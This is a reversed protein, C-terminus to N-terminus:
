ITKLIELLDSTLRNALYIHGEKNLHTADPTTTTGLYIDCNGDNKIDSVQGSGTMYDNLKRILQGKNDYIEGNMMDIFPYKYKLAINKLATNKPEFTSKRYKPKPVFVGLVVVLCNPLRTKIEGYLRDIEKTFEEVSYSTDNIAGEMFLIDPNFYYVDTEMRDGIKTRNVGPNLYGTGGVGVNICDYNLYKSILYPYGLHKYMIVSSSETISSGQFVALPKREERLQYLSYIKNFAIGGFNEQIELIIERPKASDFKVKTYRRSGDNAGQIDFDNKLYKFGNGENILMRFKLQGIFYIEFEDGDFGFGVCLMGGKNNGMTADKCSIFLNKPAPTDLKDIKHRFYNFKNEVVTGDVIALEEIRNKLTSPQAVLRTTYEVKMSSIEYDNKIVENYKKINYISPKVNMNEDLILEKLNEYEKKIKKVLTNDIYKIQTIKEGLEELKSYLEKISLLDNVNQKKLTDIDVQMKNIEKPM